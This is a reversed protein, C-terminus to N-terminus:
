EDLLLGDEEDTTEAETKDSKPEDIEIEKWDEIERFLQPNLFVPKLIDLVHYIFQANDWNESNIKSILADKMEDKDVSHIEEYYSDYYFWDADTECVSTENFIRFVQIPENEDIVTKCVGEFDDLYEIGESDEFASKLEGEDANDAYTEILTHKLEEKDEGNIACRTAEEIIDQASGISVDSSDLEAKLRLYMEAIKELKM